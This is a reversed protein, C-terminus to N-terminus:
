FSLSVQNSGILCGSFFCVSALDIGLELLGGIGVGLLRLGAIAGTWDVGWANLRLGGGILVSSAKLFRRM